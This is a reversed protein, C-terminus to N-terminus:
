EGFLNICYLITVWESLLVAVLSFITAVLVRWGTRGALFASLWYVWFYGAFALVIPLFYVLINLDYLAEIKKSGYLFLTGTCLHLLGVIFTRQLLRVIM